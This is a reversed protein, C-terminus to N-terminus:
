VVSKRDVALEEDNEMNDVGEPRGPANQQQQQFRKLVQLSAVRWYSLQSWSSVPLRLSIPLDCTQVGTM